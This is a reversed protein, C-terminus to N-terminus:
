TYAARASGNTVSITHTSTGQYARRPPAVHLTAICTNGARASTASGLTSGDWEFTVQDPICMHRPGKDPLWRYTATFQADPRGERPSVVLSTGGAAYGYGGDMAVGAGVVGTALLLGAILRRLVRM